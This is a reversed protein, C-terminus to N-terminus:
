YLLFVVPIPAYIGGEEEAAVPHLLVRFQCAPDKLLAVLDAAVAVAVFFHGEHGPPLDRLLDTYRLRLDGAKFFTGKLAYSFIHLFHLM